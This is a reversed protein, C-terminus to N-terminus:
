RDHQLRWYVLGGGVFVLIWMWTETVRWAEEAGLLAVTAAIVAFFTLAFLLAKIWVKGPAAWFIILPLASLVLLALVAQETTASGGGHYRVAFAVTVVIAVGILAFRYVPKIM